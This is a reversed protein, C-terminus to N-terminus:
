CMAAPAWSRNLPLSLGRCSPKLRIGGRRLENRAKLVRSTSWVALIVDGPLSRCSSCARNIGLLLAGPKVLTYATYVEPTMDMGAATLMREMRSRKYEDMRVFRSLKIAWGLFLADLSKMQKKDSKGASLLAKETALRPLKLIDAHHLVARLCRSLRFFLLFTM